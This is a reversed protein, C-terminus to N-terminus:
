CCVIVRCEKKTASRKKSNRIWSIFRIGEQRGDLSGRFLRGAARGDNGFRADGLILNRRRTELTPPLILVSVFEPDCYYGLRDFIEWREARVGGVVVFLGCGSYNALLSSRATARTWRLFTQAAGRGGVVTRCDSRIRQFQSAFWGPAFSIHALLRTRDSCHFDAQM